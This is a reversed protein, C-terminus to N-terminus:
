PAQSETKRRLGNAAVWAVAAGIVICSGIYIRSRPEQIEGEESIFHMRPFIAEATSTGVVAGLVAGAVASWVALRIRSREM